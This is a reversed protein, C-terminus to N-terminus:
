ARRGEIIHILHQSPPGDSSDGSGDDRGGSSARRVGRRRRRARGARRVLLRPVCRARDPHRACEDCGWEVEGRRIVALVDGLVFTAAFVGIM